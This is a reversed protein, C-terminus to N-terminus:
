LKTTRATGARSPHLAAPQQNASCGPGGGQTPPATPRCATPHGGCAASWHWAPAASLCLQLGCGSASRCGVVQHMGPVPCPWAEPKKAIACHPPPAAVARVVHGQQRLAQRLHKTKQEAQEEAAESRKRKALSSSKQVHLCNSERCATLSPLTATCIVSDWGCATCQVRAAGSLGTWCGRCSSALLSGCWLPDPAWVFCGVCPRRTSMCGLQYAGLSQM